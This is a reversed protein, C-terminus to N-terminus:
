ASARRQFVPASPPQHGTEALCRAKLEDITGGRNFIEKNSEAEIRMQERLERTAQEDVTTSNVLVVGYRCAGELTVLGRDVDKAVVAADRDFPNGWGGGGWTDFHLVDGAYVKVRDCKSAVLEENGDKRCLIKRSRQGPLGGNVGWPYTLWRDDHVSIEGDELFGYSIRLANGGRHKGPGGTDPLTVYNEIRL